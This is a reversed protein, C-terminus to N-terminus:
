KAVNLVKINARAHPTGTPRREPPRSAVVNTAVLFTIIKEKRKEEKKGKKEGNDVKRMFPTSPDFYKNLLLQRSRGLVLLYVGKWIGIAM